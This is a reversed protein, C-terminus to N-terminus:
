AKGIVSIPPFGHSTLVLQEIKGDPQLAPGDQVQHPIGSGADFGFVRSGGHVRYVTGGAAFPVRQQNLYGFRAEEAM